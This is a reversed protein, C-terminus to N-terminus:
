AEIAAIGKKVRKVADLVDQSKLIDQSAEISEAKVKSVGCLDIYTKEQYDSACRSMLYIIDRLLIFKTDFVDMEIATPSFNSQSKLTQLTLELTYILSVEKWNEIRSLTSVMETSTLAVKWGDYLQDLKLKAGGKSRNINKHTTNALMTAVRSLHLFYRATYGAHKNELKLIDECAQRKREQEDKKRQKDSKRWGVVAVALAVISALFTASVGATNIDIYKSIEVFFSQMSIEAGIFVGSLFVISLGILAKINEKM